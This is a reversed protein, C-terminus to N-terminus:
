CALVAKSQINLLWTRYQVREQRREVQRRQALALHMPESLSCAKVRDGTEEHSLTLPRFRPSSGLKELGKFVNSVPMDPRTRCLEFTTVAACFCQDAM